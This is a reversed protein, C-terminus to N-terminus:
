LQGVGNLHQTAFRLQNLAIQANEMIDARLADAVADPDRQALGELLDPYHNISSSAFGAELIKWLVPGVRLWISEIMSLAFPMDASQYIAFHLAFNDRLIDGWDESSVIRKHFEQIKALAVGTIKLAARRAVLTELELRVATLEEYQEVSMVPVFFASKASLQLAGETELRKLAERAPTQSVGLAEAISRSSFRDGLHIAGSMLAEKVSQYVQKDVPGGGTELPTLSPAQLKPRGPPSLRKPRLQKM